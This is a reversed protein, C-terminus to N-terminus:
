QLKSPTVSQIPELNPDSSGKYAAAAASVNAVQPVQGDGDISDVLTNLTTISPDAPRLKKTSNEKMM